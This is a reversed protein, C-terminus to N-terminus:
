RGVFVEGVPVTMASLDTLVTLYLSLSRHCDGNIGKTILPKICSANTNDKLEADLHHQDVQQHSNLVHFTVFFVPKQIPQWCTSGTAWQLKLKSQKSEVDKKKEGIGFCGTQLSGIM